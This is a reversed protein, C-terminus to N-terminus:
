DDERAAYRSTAEDDTTLIAAILLNAAADCREHDGTVMRDFLIGKLGSTLATAAAEAAARPRGAAAFLEATYDVWDRFGRQAAVPEPGGETLAAAMLHFMVTFHGRQGPDTMVAWAARARGAPDGAGAILEQTRARHVALAASLLEERSGFYHVLMRASTGLEAALGRLSFQALGVHGIHDLAAEALAARHATDPLRAM